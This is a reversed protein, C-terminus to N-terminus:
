CGRFYYSVLIVLRHWGPELYWKRLIKTWLVLLSSFWFLDLQVYPCELFGIKYLARCLFKFLITIHVSIHFPHSLPCSLWSLEFSQASFVKLNLNGFLVSIKINPLITNRLIISIARLKWSFFAQSVFYIGM